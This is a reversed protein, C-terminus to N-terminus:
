AFSIFSCSEPGDDDDDDDLVDEVGGVEFPLLLLLLDFVFLLLPLFSPNFTYQSLSFGTACLTLRAFFAFSPPNPLADDDPLSAGTPQPFLAAAGNTCLVANAEASPLTVLALADEEEEVLLVMLLVVILLAYM